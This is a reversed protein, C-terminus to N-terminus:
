NRRASDANGSTQQKAGYSRWRLCSRAAVSGRPRRAKGSIGGGPQVASIRSCPSRHHLVAVVIFASSIVLSIGSLLAPGNLTLSVWAVTLVVLLGTALAERRSFPIWTRPFRLLRVFSVYAVAYLAAAGLAAVVEIAPSAEIDTM